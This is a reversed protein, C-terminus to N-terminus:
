TLNIVIMNSLEHSRQILYRSLTSSVYWSNHVWLGLVVLAHDHSCCPQHILHQHDTASSSLFNLPPLHYFMRVQPPWISKKKEDLSELFIEKVCKGLPPPAVAGGPACMARDSNTIIEGKPLTGSFSELNSQRPYRHLVLSSLYEIIRELPKPPIHWLGLKPFTILIQNHM